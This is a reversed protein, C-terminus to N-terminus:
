PTRGAPPVTRGSRSASRSSARRRGRCTTSGRRGAASLWCSVPARVLVTVVLDGTLAWLHPVSRPDVVLEAAIGDLAGGRLTVQEPRFPVGEVALPDHWSVSGSGRLRVTVVFQEFGRRYSISFVNRSPPNGVAESAPTPRQAVAVTDFRYDSPVRQPVLPEYGVAGAAASLDVRRFGDDQHSVNRGPEFRLAFV